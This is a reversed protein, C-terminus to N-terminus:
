GHGPGGRKGFFYGSTFWGHLACRSCSVSPDITLPDTQVIRWEANNLTATVTEGDACVHEFVVRDDEIRATPEAM